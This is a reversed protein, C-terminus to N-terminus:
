PAAAIQGLKDKMAPALADSFTASIHHADRYVLVDGLVAPCTQDNCLLSTFDVNRAAGDAAVAAEAARTAEDLGDAREIACADADGLHDSLCIAPTAPALPTDAVIVIESSSPLQQITEAMAQHWYSEPDEVSATYYRAYNSLVIVDPPDEGLRDIVADRWRACEPYGEADSAIWASACSSKTHSDLRIDGAAALAALAPHWQAAHSDGFLAVRPAQAPGTSCDGPTSTAVDLHCGDAYVSPNDGSADALAPRLNTPVYPTGQPSAGITYGPAPGESSLPARQVAVIGVVALSAVAVPVALAATLTRRPRPAPAKRPRRFPQEVFRYSLYALPVALLALGATAGVPLPHELGVAAQPIVLLPWHVLYLSYSIEGVFQMPARELAWAPAWRSGGAGGAIVLAAGAVPLLTSVGPFTTEGSFTVGAVLIAAVGAYSLLGAPARHLWTAGPVLAAILGGAGLEWARTPLSFFAWPEFVGMVVLCAALSLAALVGIVTATARTSGRTTRVVALLVLPWFLYFQEEIGLSWYHQFVSPATEALYDTGEVAFFVNPVYLATAAADRLVEVHRLPPLWILAAVLSLVLTVLAAPLIRRVRRAYFRGLDVTGSTSLQSLLHTTILYGSIVFFVDVGVFGGSFGPVGAHYLLVLVVAVARLGQIDPRFAATRRSDVPPATM